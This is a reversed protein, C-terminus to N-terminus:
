AENWTLKHHACEALFKRARTLAVNVANVTWSVKQAIQPPLLGETYRMEIIKHAQPALQKLCERVAEGRASWLNDPEPVADCLMEMVEGNLSQPNNKHHRHHEMVKFRAIARAWALFNSGEQFDGAKRTITIFVEQFVDDASHFDPMLGLIFGRILGSNQIFLSQVTETSNLNAM